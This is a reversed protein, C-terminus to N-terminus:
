VITAGKSSFQRAKFGSCSTQFLFRCPDCLHDFDARPYHQGHITLIKEQKRDM